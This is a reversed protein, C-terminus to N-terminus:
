LLLLGYLRKPLSCLSATVLPLQTSVLTATDEIYASTCWKSPATVLSENTLQQIEM